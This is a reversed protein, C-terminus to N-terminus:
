RYESITMILAHTDAFAAPFAILGLMCAAWRLPKM